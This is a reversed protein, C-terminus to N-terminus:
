RGGILLAICLLLVPVFLPIKGTVGAVVTFVLALAVLVNFATLAM